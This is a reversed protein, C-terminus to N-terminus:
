DCCVAHADAVVDDPCEQAARAAHFYRAGHQGAARSNDALHERIQLRIARALPDRTKIFDHAAGGVRREAIARQRRYLAVAIQPVAEDAIASKKGVSAAVVSESSIM